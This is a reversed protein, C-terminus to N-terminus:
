SVPQEPVSGDDDRSTATPRFEAILGDPRSAKLKHLIDNTRSLASRLEKLSLSYLLQDRTRRATEDGQIVAVESWAYAEKPDAAVSLGRRHMESLLEAAEDDSNYAARKLYTQAKAFDPPV